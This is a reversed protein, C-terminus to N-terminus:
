KGCIAKHHHVFSEKPLAKTAMNAPQFDTNIPFIQRVCECFHHYCVAIHKTRSRMKPLKVLELAGLNDEFAKCYINPLTCLVQFGKSIMKNILQMIPIIDYLVSSLAIYEAETTSLAVLRQLKSTWVIPCGTYMMYWGSTSKACAPDQQSYEWQFAGAYNTNAYCEFGAKPNVKFILGLTKTHDLYM